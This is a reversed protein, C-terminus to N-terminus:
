FEFGEVAKALAALDDGQYFQRSTKESTHRLCRTILIQPIGCGQMHTALSRRISHFGLNPIGARL